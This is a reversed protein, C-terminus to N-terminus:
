QFDDQCLFDQASDPNALESHCTRGRDTREDCLAQGCSCDPTRSCLNEVCVRDITESPGLTSVYAVCLQSETCTETGCVRESVFSECRSGNCRAGAQAGPGVFRGDQALAYASAACGCAPFTSGCALAAAEFESTFDKNVGVVSTGGCCDAVYVATTCEDDGSCENYDSVFDCAGSAGGSGTAGGSGLAGGVAPDGGNGAGAMLGGSGALVGGTSAQAGGANLSGGSSPNKTGGAGEESSIAIKNGNSDVCFGGECAVSEPYKDCDQSDECLAWNTSSSSSPGGQADCGTSVLFGLFGFGLVSALNKLISNM